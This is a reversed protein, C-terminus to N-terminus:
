AVMRLLVTVVSNVPSSSYKPCVREFDPDLAAEAIIRRIDSFAFSTRGKVKHGSEIKWRAGYYEIIQTM